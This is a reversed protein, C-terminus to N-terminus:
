PPKLADSLRTFEAACRINSPSTFSLFSQTYFDQYVGFASVYSSLVLNNFVPTAWNLRSDQGTLVFNCWGAPLGM